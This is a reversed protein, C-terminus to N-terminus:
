GVVVAPAGWIAIKPLQGVLFKANNKAIKVINLNNIGTLM